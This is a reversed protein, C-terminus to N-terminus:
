EYEVPLREADRNYAYAHYGAAIRIYVNGRLDSYVKREIPVGITRSTDPVVYDYGNFELPVPEVEQLWAKRATLRVVVYFGGIGGGFYDRAAYIQGVRLGAAGTNKERIMYQM